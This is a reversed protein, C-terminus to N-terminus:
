SKIDNFDNVKTKTLSNMYFCMLLFYLSYSILYSVNAGDVGLMKVFVFSFGIFIVSFFLESFVYWKVDGRALMPYSMLWSAIKIVDGCLQVSFLERANIFKDTFLMMIIVDRLLYVVAAMCIAVPLIIQLTSFVEKKLVSIDKVSSLKPLYYTSLAITIVALYTESIKWVAQWEGAAEWGVDQILINRVLVLSVPLTIATTLAMLMYKLISHMHEPKVKGIFNRRKLWPEKLYCLFVLIGILGNQVAVAYLAGELHGYTILAIMLLTSFIVSIMGVAIFKKYKKKGNTISNFLTGIAAFPLLFAMIILLFYYEDNGFLFTSLPASLLVIVPILILLILGVWRVGARWWNACVADGEGAFEATYRVIGSAAPANVIGTLSSAVSQLQGLMALGSPGTYVAIVKAVIFGAGMRMLTLLGSFATVSLLRKM